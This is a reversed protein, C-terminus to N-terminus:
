WYVDDFDVIGMIHIRCCMKNIRLAEFIFATGKLVDDRLDIKDMDIKDPNDSILKEFYRNKILEYFPYIEALDEGCEPCLIYCIM